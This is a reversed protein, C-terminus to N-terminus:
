KTPLETKTATQLNVSYLKDAQTHVYITNGADNIAIAGFVKEGLTTVTKVSLNSFQPSIDVTQVAGAETVTVITNGALLPRDSTEGSLKVKTILNGSAADLVHLWGNISVVYVNGGSVLPAAWIWSEAQYEWKLSGGEANLAYLKRDFSGVYVTGGDVVPTAMIAGGTKFDWKKTGDAANLAYLKRDFSGIYVTGNVVAPTSWVKNGTAFPNAWTAILRDNVAYVKKDATGFYIVGNASALGGVIGGIVQGSQPFGVSTLNEGSVYSYVHGIATTGSGLYAGVYVKDGVVTPSGYVAAGNDLKANMFLQNSTLDIGILRGDMTGVYLKDGAVTPGSWGRPITTRPGCSATVILALALAGALLWKPSRGVRSLVRLLDGITRGTGPRRSRTM